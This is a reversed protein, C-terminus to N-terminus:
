SSPSSSDKIPNASSSSTLQAAPALKVEDRTGTSSSRLRAKSDSSVPIPSSIVIGDMSQTGPTIPLASPNPVTLSHHPRPPLPPPIMTASIPILPLTPPPSPAAGSDSDKRQKKGSDGFLLRISSEGIKQGVTLRKARTAPSNLLSGSGGAAKSQSTISATSATFSSDSSSTSTHRRSGNHSSAGGGGGGGNKEEDQAGWGSSDEGAGGETSQRSENEEEMVKDMSLGKEGSVLGLRIGLFRGLTETVQGLMSKIVEKKLHSALHTPTWRKKQVLMSKVKVPLGEIDEINYKRTGGSFYSLVILSSGLRLYNFYIEAEADAKDSPTSSSSKRSSTSSAKDSPNSPKTTSSPLDMGAAGILPRALSVSVRRAASTLASPTAPVSASGSHSHDLSDLSVSPRMTSTSSMSHSHHPPHPLHTSTTSMISTSSRQGPTAASPSHDDEERVEDEEATPNLQSSTSASSGHQKDHGHRHFFNSIGKFANKVGSKRHGGEAGGGERPSHPASNSSAAGFGLLAQQKSDLEEQDVDLVAQSQPLFQERYKQYQRKLRQQETVFFDIIATIGEYTIRVSIPHLNVELHKLVVLESDEKVVVQVHLMVDRHTWASDVGKGGGMFLQVMEKWEYEPRSSDQYHPLLNRGGIGKVEVVADLTADVDAKATLHLQDLYLNMFPKENKMLMFNIREVMVSLQLHHVKVASLRRQKGRVALLLSFFDHGLRNQERLLQKFRQHLETSSDRARGGGEKAKQDKEIREATETLWTEFHGFNSASSATLHQQVSREHEESNEEPQSSPRDEIGAILWGIAKMEWIVDVMSQQVQVVQLKLEEISEEEHLRAAAEEEKKQAHMPLPTVITKLVDVLLSFQYADLNFTMEPLQVDVVNFTLPSFVLCHPGATLVVPLLNVSSDRRLAAAEMMREEYEKREKKAAKGGEGKGGGEGGVDVRREPVQVTTVPLMEPRIQAKVQLTAPKMISKLVGVNQKNMWIVGADVDIDTPAVFAQIDDLVVDVRFKDRSIVALPPGSSPARRDPSDPASFSHTRIIYPSDGHPQHLSHIWDIRTYVTIQSTMFLLRGRTEESHCNFQPNIIEVCLLEQAESKTQSEVIDCDCHFALATSVPQASDAIPMTPPPPTPGAPPSEHLDADAPPVLTLSGSHERSHRGRTQSATLTSTRTHPVAPVLSPLTTVSGEKGTGTLTSRRVSADEASALRVRGRQPLALKSVSNSSSDREGVTFSGRRARTPSLGGSNVRSQFSALSLLAPDDVTDPPPSGHVVFSPQSRMTHWTTDANEAAAARDRRQRAREERKGEELWGRDPEMLEQITILYQEALTSITSLIDLTCLLRPDHIRVQHQTPLALLPSPPASSQSHAPVPYFAVHSLSPSPSPSLPSMGQGDSYAMISQTSMLEPPQNIVSLSAGYSLRSQLTSGGRTDERRGGGGREEEDLDPISDETSNRIHFYSLLSTNAAGRNGVSSISQARRPVKPRMLGDRATGDEGGDVVEGDRIRRRSRVKKGIVKRRFRSRKEDLAHVDVDQPAHMHTKQHVSLLALSLVFNQANEVKKKKRRVTADGGDKDATKLKRVRIWRRRRVNCYWKKVRSYTRPFDHAYEWGDEDVEGTKRLSFDLQWDSEWEWDDSPLRLSDKTVEESGSANSWAARDTPLLNRASWGQGLTYRENEYTALVVRSSSSTLDHASAAELLQQQEMWRANYVIEGHACSLRVAVNSLSWILGTPPPSAFPADVGAPSTSGQSHNFPSLDTPDEQGKDRTYDFGKSQDRVADEEGGGRSGGGRQNAVAAGTLAGVDIYIKSHKLADSPIVRMGREEQMEGVVEIADIALRLGRAAGLDAGEWVTVTLSQVLLRELYVGGVAVSVGGAGGGAGGGGKGGRSGRKVVVEAPPAMIRSLTEDSLRGRGMEGGVGERGEGGVMGGPQQQQVLTHMMRRFVNGDMEGRDMMGIMEDNINDDLLVLRADRVDMERAILEAYTRLRNAHYTHYYRTLPARNPMPLPPIHAYVSSFQVLSALSGSHITVALPALPTSTSSSSTPSPSLAPPPAVSTANASSFTVALSLHLACRHQPGATLSLGAAGRGQHAAAHIPASLHLSPPVLRHNSPIDVLAPPRSREVRSVGRDEEARVEGENGISVHRHGGGGGGGGRGGGGGGVRPSAPAVSAAEGGVMLGAMLGAEGGEESCVWNATVWCDMCPMEMLPPQNEKHPVEIVTVDEVKLGLLAADLSLHVAALHLNLFHSTDYPSHSSLLHVSTNLVALQVRGHLITRLVHVLNLAPSSSSSSPLSPTSLTPASPLHNPSPHSPLRHPQPPPPKPPGMPPTVKAFSSAVDNLTYFFCPSFAVTAGELGINVDYFVHPVPPNSAPLFSAVATNGSVTILSTSLLPLPFNRLRLQLVDLRVSFYRGLLGTLAPLPEPAPSLLPTTPSFMGPPPPSLSSTLVPSFLASRGDAGFAPSTAKMLESAGRSRGPMEWAVAEEARRQHVLDAIVDDDYFSGLPGECGANVTMSDVSCLMLSAKKLSEGERMKKKLEEVKRIYSRSNYENLLLYLSAEESTLASSDLSAEVAAISEVGALSTSSSSSPLTTTAAEAPHSHPSPHAAGKDRRMKDIRLKLLARRREQETREELWLVHLHQLFSEMPEDVVEFQVAKLRMSLGPAPIDPPGTYGPGGMRKSLFDLTPLDLLATFLATLKTQISDLLPGIDMKPSLEIRVGEMTLALDLYEAVLNQEETYAVSLPTLELGERILMVRDVHLLPHQLLDVVVGEFEWQNPIHRSAFRDVGVFASLTEARNLFAAVRIHRVDLTVHMYGESLYRARTHHYWVRYRDVYKKKNALLRLMPDAQWDLPARPKTGVLPLLHYGDLGLLRSKMTVAAAVIDKILKFLPLFMAPTWEGEVGDATVDLAKWVESTANHGGISVDKVSLFPVNEHLCYSHHLHLAWASTPLHVDINLLAGAYTFLTPPRASKPAGPHGALEPAGEGEKGEMGVLGSGDDPIVEATRLVQADAKRLELVCPFDLTINTVSGKLNLLPLPYDFKAPPPSPPRAPPPKVGEPPLPLSPMLALVFNFVNPFLDLMAPSYKVALGDGTLQIDSSGRDIVVSASSLSLFRGPQKITELPHPPLGGRSHAEHPLVAVLSTLTIQVKERPATSPQVHSSNSSTPSSPSSDKHPHSSPSSASSASPPIRRHKTYPIIARSFLSFFDDSMNSLVDHMSHKSHSYPEREMRVAVEDLSLQVYAHADGEVLSCLQVQLGSICKVSFVVHHQIGREAGVEGQTVAQRRRDPTSFKLILADPRDWRSNNMWDQIGKRESTSSNTSRDALRAAEQRSQEEYRQRHRTHDAQRQEEDRELQTHILPILAILVDFTSACSLGFQVWQSLRHHLTVSTQVFILSLVHSNQADRVSLPHFLSGQKEEEKEGMRGVGGRGGRGGVKEEAEEEEVQFLGLEASAAQGFSLATAVGGGVGWASGGMSAPIISWDFKVSNVALLPRDPQQSMYLLLGRGITYSLDFSSIHNDYTSRVPTFHNPLPYRTKFSTQLLNITLTLEIHHLIPSIAIAPASPTSPALYQTPAPKTSPSITTPPVVEAKQKGMGYKAILDAYVDSTLTSLLADLTNTEREFLAVSLRHVTASASTPLFRLMSDRRKAVELSATASSAAMAAVGKPSPLHASPPPPPAASAQQVRTILLQYAHLAVSVASILLVPDIHVNLGQGKLDLRNLGSPVMWSLPFEALVALPHVVLLPPKATPPIVMARLTPVGSSLGSSLMALFAAASSPTQRTEFSATFCSEVAPYTLMDTDSTRGLRLEIGGLKCHLQRLQALHPDPHASKPREIYLLLSALRLSILSDDKSVLCLVSSLSLALSHIVWTQLQLCAWAWLRQRPPLTSTSAHTSLKAFLDPINPASASPHRAPSPLPPPPPPPSSSSPPAPHADQLRLHVNAGKVTAHLLKSFSPTWALEDISVHCTATLFPSLPLALLELRIETIRRPSIGAISVNITPLSRLLAYILWNVALGLVRPLLSLFCVVLVASEWSLGLFPM